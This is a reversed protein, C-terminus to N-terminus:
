VQHIWAPTYRRLLDNLPTGAMVERGFVTARMRLGAGPIQVLAQALASGTGLFVPLGVMGECGIVAIEILTGEQTVRLLSVVGHEVFWVYPIPTHADYLSQRYPLPVPELYPLLRLYEAQPLAALLRNTSPRDPALADSAPEETMGMGPASKHGRDAPVSRREWPRRAVVLWASACAEPM